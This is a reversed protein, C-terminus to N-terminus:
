RVPDRQVPQTDCRLVARSAAPEVQVDQEKLLRQAQKCWFPPEDEDRWLLEQIDLGSVREALEQAPMM